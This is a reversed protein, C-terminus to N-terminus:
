AIDYAVNVAVQLEQMGPEVPTEAGPLARPAAQAGYRAPPYGPVDSISRLRGLSVGAADAMQKARAQAQQVAAARAQARLASDDAISFSLQQIRVTDGAIGVAADIIRGASTIDRLTANVQNSVQYGIIRAGGPGYVSSVALESTRVDAAAVGNSKLMAVLANAKATNADLAGRASPGQTQVGLVLTATDPAGSVKGVGHAVIGAQADLSQNDTQRHADACGALLLAGLTLAVSAFMVRLM